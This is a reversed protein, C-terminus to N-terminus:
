VHRYFAQADFDVPKIAVQSFSAAATGHWLSVLILRTGHRKNHCVSLEVAGEKVM